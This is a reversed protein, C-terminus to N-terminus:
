SNAAKAILGYKRLKVYLSQRSLGLMEAVAVRNNQTLEVAAEICMKEVVDSSEAVIDKLPATGVMELISRANEDNVRGAAAGPRAADLHSVDRVVFGFLDEDSGKLHSVAIEVSRPAGHDGILKTSYLRMSGNRATNEIMVNLDVSGRQLNDGLNRGEVPADDHADVLRLFSRNAWTLNGDASAFAIGDPGGDFLDELAKIKPAVANPTDRRSIQCFLLQEGATRFATAELTVSKGSENLATTLTSGRGALAADNLAELLPKDEGPEFM